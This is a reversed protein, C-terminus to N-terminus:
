KACMPCSAMDQAHAEDSSAHMSACMPCSAMDHKMAQDGSGHMSACMPCMAHEGQPMSGMAAHDHGGGAAAAKHEAVLLKLADAMLAVKKNGKAKDIQALLQDIETQKAPETPTAAKAKEAALMAAHDHTQGAVASQPSTVPSQHSDQAWVPAAWTLSTSFVLVSMFSALRM